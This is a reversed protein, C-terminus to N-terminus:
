GAKKLRLRNNRAWERAYRRRKEINRQYYTRSYALKCIKCQRAGSSDIKLNGGSLSHGNHCHTKRANKAALGEGRLINEKRTVPELHSPNICSRVRCLHDLQLSESVKGVIAEYVVRHAVDYQNKISNWIGGYGDSRIHGAWLWCNNLQLEM